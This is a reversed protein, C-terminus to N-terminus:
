VLWITISILFAQPTYCWFNTCNDSVQMFIVYIWILTFVVHHHLQLQRQWGVNCHSLPLIYSFIKSKFKLFQIQFWFKFQQFECHFYAATDMKEKKKKKRLLVLFIANSDDYTRVHSYYAAANELAISKFNQQSTPRESPPQNSTQSTLHMISQIFDVPTVICRSHATSHQAATIIMLM